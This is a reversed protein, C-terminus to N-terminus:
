KGSNEDFRTVPERLILWLENQPDDPSARIQIRDFMPDAFTLRAKYLAQRCKQVDNTRIIIGHASECAATLIIYCRNELDSFM